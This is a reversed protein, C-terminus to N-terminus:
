GCLPRVSDMGRRGSPYSQQRKPGRTVIALILSLPHFGEKYSFNFFVM